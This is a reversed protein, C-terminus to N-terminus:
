IRPMPRYVTMIHADETPAKYFNKRTGVTKFGSKEYFNIATLNSTRVELSIFSMDKERGYQFLSKMLKKAVGKRQYEKSVAINTIYGEDIIHHMGIYGIVKGTEAEVAVKFVALPNSLEETFGDESWPESFCEAELLVLQNIHSIDMPVIEFFCRGHEDM